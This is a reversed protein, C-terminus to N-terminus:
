AAFIRVVAEKSEPKPSEKLTDMLADKDAKSLAKACADVAPKCGDWANGPTEPGILPTRRGPDLEFRRRSEQHRKEFAAWREKALGNIRIAILGTILALVALMGGCGTLWPHRRHFPERPTADSM